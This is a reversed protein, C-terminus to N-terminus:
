MITGWLRLKRGNPLEEGCACREPPYLRGETCTAAAVTTVYNHVPVTEYTKTVM